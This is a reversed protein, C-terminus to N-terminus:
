AGAAAAPEARALKDGGARVLEEGMASSLRLRIDPVKSFNLHAVEFLGFETGKEIQIDEWPFFLPPHGVRFPGFTKLYMGAEDAGVVLVGKYQTMGLRGGKWSWVQAPWPRDSAYQAALTSWGGTRSLVWSIGSFMGGLVIFFAPIIFLLLLPSSPEPAMSM